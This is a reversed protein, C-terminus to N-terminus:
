EALVGTIKQKMDQWAEKPDKKQKVVPNVAETSLITQLKVTKPNDIPPVANPINEAYKQLAPHKSFFEKFTENTGLDDRAPPLNTQKLWQLDHEQNSLVWKAFDMAAKQQEKSSQAYVVLGKTDAYTKPQSPEVGDPVPPMTLVYNEKYKFDPFKKDWNPFTWPGITAWVSLGTVFPNKAKQTLLLDNEELQDLFSLTEIGAQDDAVFKEGKIFANGGSAADYLMFFDFWRAWWTSKVLDPNAWLFKKPYKEKLKKGFEIIESYTKPPESYGLDKLIDIRWGFLMANSYLPIVYQHGDSFEWPEITKKMHRKKVIESFQSYEDMPVIAGDKALQAGFGRSINESMVPATGSALATQIGAESSPSEPMQNVKISVNEHTEMYSNAMKKWFATQTPNPAAWFEFSIKATESSNQSQSGVETANGGPKQCGAVIGVILLGVVLLSLAKKKM